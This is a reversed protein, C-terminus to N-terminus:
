GGSWQCVGAAFRARASGASPLTRLLERWSPLWDAERELLRWFVVGYRRLLTMAIHELTDAPTSGAKTIGPPAQRGVGCCRGAGPMTWAASLRGADVGAATRQRKSAPTILARLGAFSDANVLGAGVLEQLAIELESRLLHAEHILEDFFMAGHQSLAEHVGKANETVVRQRPTQETLASWLGVQHRPLLVIPTSRLATGSVKNRATLRTWVLKGNRCLDDLWSPSYDKLRAPLIDSDWAGIRGGSLRRVSRCDGAVRCKGQGSHQAPCSAALRVSFAHLGAVGGTRNGPAPAQGHLSPNAGAFAARVM